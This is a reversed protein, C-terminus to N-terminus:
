RPTRSPRHGIEIGLSPDVFWNGAAARRAEGSAYVLKDASDRLELYNGELHKRPCGLLQDVVDRQRVANVSALPTDTTAVLVVAPQIARVTSVRVSRLGLQAGERAAIEGLSAPPDDFLQDPVTNGFGGGIKQRSGEPTVLTARVERITGFGRVEYVDAVAGALLHGQWSAQTGAGPEFSAVGLDYELVLAPEPARSEFLQVPGTVVRADLVLPLGAAIAAVVGDPTSALTPLEGTRPAYQVPRGPSKTAM